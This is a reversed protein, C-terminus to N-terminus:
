RLLEVNEEDATTQSSPSAGLRIAAEGLLRDFDRPQARDLDSESLRNKLRNGKRNGLSSQSSSRM